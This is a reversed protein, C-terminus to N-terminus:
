DFSLFFAIIIIIYIIYNLTRVTADLRTLLYLIKGTVSVNMGKNSLALQLSSFRLSSYIYIILFPLGNLDFPSSLYNSLYISVEVLTKFQVDMTIMREQQNSNNRDLGLSFELAMKIAAPVM